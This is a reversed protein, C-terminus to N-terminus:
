NVVRIGGWGRHGKKEGKFRVAGDAGKELAAALDALEATPHDLCHM